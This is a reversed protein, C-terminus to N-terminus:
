LECSLLLCGDSHAIFDNPQVAIHRVVKFGTRRYLRLAPENDAFVVLTVCKCDNAVARERTLRILEEGIGRRRHSEVVCLADLFWSDAVNAAYVHELHALRDAPLFQRMEDTIAHHKSLYSLSMGAIGGADRGVIVSEHSYPSGTRQLSHAVIQVPQVGPVLDHFLFDVVGESATSILAALTSIDDPQAPGYRM